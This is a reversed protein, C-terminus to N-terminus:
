RVGGQNCTCDVRNRAIDAAHRDVDRGSDCGDRPGTFREDRRGRSVHDRGVVQAELISAAVNELADLAPPQEIRDM